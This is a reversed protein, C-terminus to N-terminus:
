QNGMNYGINETRLTEVLTKPLGRAVLYDWDPIIGKGIALNIIENVPMYLTSPAHVTGLLWPPLDFYDKVRGPVVESLVENLISSVRKNYYWRKVPSNAFGPNPIYVKWELGFATEVGTQQSTNGFNDIDTRPPAEEAGTASNIVKIGFRNYLTLHKDVVRELEQAEAASISSDNEFQESIQALEEIRSNMIVKLYYNFRDGAM